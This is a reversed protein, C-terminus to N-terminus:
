ALTAHGHRHGGDGLGGAFREVRHAGKEVALGAPVEGIFDAAVLVVTVSQGVRDRVGDRRPHAIVMLRRVAM